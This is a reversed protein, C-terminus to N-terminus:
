QVREAKLSPIVPATPDAASPSLGPNPDNGGSISRLTARDLERMPRPSSAPATKKKM